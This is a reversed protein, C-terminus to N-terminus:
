YPTLLKCICLEFCGADLERAAAYSTLLLLGLRDGLGIQWRLRGDGVAWVSNNSSRNRASVLWESHVSSAPVVMYTVDDGDGCGFPNRKGLLSEDERETCPVVLGFWCRHGRTGPLGSM